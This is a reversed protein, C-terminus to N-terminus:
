VVIRHEWREIGRKKLTAPAALGVVSGQLEREFGLGKGNAMVSVNSSEQSGEFLPRSHYRLNVDSASRSGSTTGEVAPAPHEPTHLLLCAKADDLSTVGVNDVGNRVDNREGHTSGCGRVGDGIAM